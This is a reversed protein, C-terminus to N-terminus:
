FVVKNRGTRKGSYLKGDAETITKDIPEGFRHEAVGFTMSVQIITDQYPIETKAIQKRLEEVQAACIDGNGNDFALLFEEGGWRALYGKERMFTKMLQSVKKLVMDGADHGYTDNVHKFLDIDGIVINLYIGMHESDATIKQLRTMIERRNYLGTLPDHSALDRVRNNYDILKKEMVLSDRSFYLIMLTMAVFITVTNVTQFFLSDLEGITVVPAHHRTFDYLGLRLLCFAVAMLAKLRTEAYSSLLGFLLLAFLFHQVGFDWGLIFVYVMIWVVTLIILYYRTSVTRNRYTLYFALIEAILCVGAISSLTPNLRLLFIVLQILFYVGTVSSFIRILVATKKTENDSQVDQLFLSILRNM